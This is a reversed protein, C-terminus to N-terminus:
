DLRILTSIKTTSPFADSRVVLLLLLSTQLCPYQKVNSSLQTLQTSKCSKKTQHKASHKKTQKGTRHIALAKKWNCQYLALSGSHSQHYQLSISFFPILQAHLCLSNVISQVSLNKVIYNKFNSHYLQSIIDVESSSSIHPTIAFLSHVLKNYLAIDSEIFQLVIFSNGYHLRGLDCWVWFTIGLRTALCWNRSVLRSLPINGIKFIHGPEHTPTFIRWKGAFMQDSKWCNWM